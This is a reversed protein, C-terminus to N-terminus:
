QVAARDQFDPASACPAMGNSKRGPKLLEGSSYSKL